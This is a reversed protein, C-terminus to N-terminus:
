SLFLSKFNIVFVLFVIGNNVLSFNKSFSVLFLILSNVLLILLKVSSNGFFLNHTRFLKSSFFLLNSAKFFCPPHPADPVATSFCYFNGAMGSVFFPNFNSALKM